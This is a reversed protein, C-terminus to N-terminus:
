SPWQTSCGPAPNEGPGPHVTRLRGSPARKRVPSWDARTSAQAAGPHVPLLRQGHRFVDDTVALGGVIHQQIYAVQLLIEVDVHAEEAGLGELRHVIYGEGDLPALSQTQHTLGAAALGGHAAGDEVQVLGSGALDPVVALGQLGLLVDVGEALLGGHDELIGVGGQVGAHRNGVDDAFRQIHVLEVGALLFALVADQLQHAIDAQVALMGGAIGVLEGAALALTDADGAGQRDIRFEDDTVLRNGGQVNRDLCLDDVHEMVQLFLQAQGIQEDGMVQQHHPVNGVANGDHVQALHDLQRIRVRNVVTRQM